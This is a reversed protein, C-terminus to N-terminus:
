EKSPFHLILLPPQSISILFFFFLYLSSDPVGLSLLNGPSPFSRGCWIRSSPRTLHQSLISDAIHVDNTVKFVTTKTFYQPCLRPQFSISSLFQLFFSQSTKELSPLAAPCCHSLFLISTKTPKKLISSIVGYTHQFLYDLFFLFHPCLLSLLTVSIINKCSHSPMPAQAGTSPNAKQCLHNKWPLQLFLPPYNSISIYIRLPLKHLNERIDAKIKLISNAPHWFSLSFIFVQSPLSTHIHPLWWSSPM